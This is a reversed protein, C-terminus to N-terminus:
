TSKGRVMELVEFTKEFDKIQEKAMDRIRFIGKHGMPTQPYRVYRRLDEMIDLARREKITRIIRRELEEIAEETHREATTTHHVMGDRTYSSQLWVERKLVMDKMDEEKVVIGTYMINTTKASMKVWVINMDNEINLEHFLVSKLYAYPHKSDPRLGMIENMAIVGDTNLRVALPIAYGAGFIGTERYTNTTELYMVGDYVIFDGFVGYKERRMFAKTAEQMDDIHNAKMMESYRWKTGDIGYWEMLKSPSNETDKIEMVQGGLIQAETQEVREHIPNSWGLTTKVMEQIAKGTWDKM